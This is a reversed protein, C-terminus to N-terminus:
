QSMVKVKGSPADFVFKQGAPASPLRKVLGVNVVQQLDTLPPWQNGEVQTARLRNYTDVLNQMYQVASLTKGDVDKIEKPEAEAAAAAAPAAGAGAGGAAPPPTTPAPPPTTAPATVAASPTAKAPPPPAM